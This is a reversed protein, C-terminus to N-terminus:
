KLVKGAKKSGYIDCRHLPMTLKQQGTAKGYLTTECLGKFIQAQLFSALFYRIMPINDAFHFKVGPDFMGSRTGPPGPPKIGSERETLMWYYDNTASYEVKGSFLDWRLTDLIYAFPIQPIKALAMHLLLTIDFASTQDAPNTDSKYKKSFKENVKGYDIMRKGMFEIDTLFNEGLEQEIENVIQAQDDDHCFIGCLYEDEFKANGAPYLYKDEILGLRSLHQPTMMATFIADGISESVATTAGDQFIPPQMVFAMYYEIHGMEHVIVYLDNLSKDACVIMRYDGDDFMNAASGHCKSVNTSQEFVSRDWFEQTMPFLGLSTYFDESRKIMDMVTWKTDIIRRNLDVEAFPLLLDPILSSWDQAFMNGTILLSQMQNGTLSSHGFTM